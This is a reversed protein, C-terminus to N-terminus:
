LKKSNLKKINIKKPLSKKVRSMLGCGCGRGRGVLGSGM